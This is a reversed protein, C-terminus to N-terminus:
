LEASKLDAYKSTMERQYLAKQERDMSQFMWGDEAYRIWPWLPAPAMGYPPTCGICKEPQYALVSLCVVNRVWM